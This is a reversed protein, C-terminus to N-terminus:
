MSAPDVGHLPGGRPSYNGATEQLPGAASCSALALEGSSKTSKVSACHRTNRCAFVSLLLPLHRILPPLSAAPAEDAYAQHYWEGDAAEFQTICLEFSPLPGAVTSVRTRENLRKKLTRGAALANNIHNEPPGKDLFARCVM